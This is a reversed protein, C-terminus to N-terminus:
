DSCVFYFDDNDIFDKKIWFYSDVSWYDLKAQFDDTPSWILGVNLNDAEEPLLNPNADSAIRIFTTSGVTAGATNYDQIGELGVTSAYLQALSPERFSTSISARLVLEDSAQYRLSVKPDFPDFM